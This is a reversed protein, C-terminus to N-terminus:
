LRSGSVIGIGGSKPSWTFAQQTALARSFQDNATETFQQTSGDSVNAKAPTLAISTLTQNVSVIVKSTVSLGGSDTITAQLTYSGVQSFTATVNKAANPSILHTFGDKRMKLRSLQSIM